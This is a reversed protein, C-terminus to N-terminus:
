ANPWKRPDILRLDESFIKKPYKKSRKRRM